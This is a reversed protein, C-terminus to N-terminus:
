VDVNQESRAKELMVMHKRIYRMMLIAKEVCNFTANGIDELPVPFQFVAPVIARNDGAVNVEYWLEGDRYFLFRAWNGKRVADKLEFKM